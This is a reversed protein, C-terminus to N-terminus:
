EGIGDLEPVLVPEDPTFLSRITEADLVNQARTVAVYLLRTESPSIPEGDLREVQFDGALQVRPWERGKSKHATSVIVDAHAERPMNELASLITPVGYEDVLGVLLSLENGQPDNEVYDQVEEWSQFCALEPHGVWRGAMLDAAAKAFSVVETGGGVVHPRRGLRKLNLVTSVSTANTRCLIADPNGLPEVVSAVRPSGQLRLPAGLRGLLLNAVEAIAPGFRFSQTLYRRHDASIEALANVAGTFEYIAQCSDGVYVLQAHSQAAVIAAMVPNADQAEDFMIVDAEIRPRRLQWAKLYHDHKYPLSGNTQQLDFWAATLAPTLYDRLRDNQEYTRTGDGQPLDIGDIYPLHHRSPREDATQCFRTVARMVHGALFGAALTKSQSGYHVTFSDIDLLRAIDMSRMRSSNLRHAFSRGVARFALSHATSCAVHAPFKSSAEVVIAKNFALYQGRTRMNEALLMLTSTKGTGAGAEIVMSEGTHFLDLAATQEDTPAFTTM